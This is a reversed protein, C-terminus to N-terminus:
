VNETTSGPATPLYSKKTTGAPAPRYAGHGPSWVYRASLRRHHLAAQPRNDGLSWDTDRRTPAPLAGGSLKISIWRQIFSGIAPKNEGRHKVQPRSRASILIGNSASQTAADFSLLKNLM